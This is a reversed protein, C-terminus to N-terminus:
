GLLFFTVVRADLSRRTVHLSSNSPRPSCLFLRLTAGDACGAVIDFMLARLRLRLSNSAYLKAFVTEALVGRYRAVCLFHPLSLTHTSSLPTFLAPFLLRAFRHARRVRLVGGLPHVAGRV